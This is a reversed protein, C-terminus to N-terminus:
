IAEYEQIKEEKKKDQLWSTVFKSSEFLMESKRGYKQRKIKLYTAYSKQQYEWRICSLYAGKIKEHQWFSVFIHIEDDAFEWAGREDNYKWNEIQQTM